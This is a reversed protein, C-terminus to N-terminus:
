TSELMEVMSLLDANVEQEDVRCLRAATQAFQGRSRAQYLDLTDLHFAGGVKLRLNIKLRDLGTAQLGRARYERGAIVCQLSGDAEKELAKQAGPAESEGPEDKAAVLARLDSATAGSAIWESCDKAPLPAARAAADIEKLREGFK